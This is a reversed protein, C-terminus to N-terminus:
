KVNLVLSINHKAIIAKEAFSHHFYTFKLRLFPRKQDNKVSKAETTSPKLTFGFVKTIMVHTLHIEMEM